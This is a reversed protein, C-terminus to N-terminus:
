SVGTGEAACIRVDRIEAEVSTRGRFTNLKPEIVAEVRMGPTLRDALEGARWWVGRIWRRGEPTEQRFHLSLHQGNGGIQKAPGDVVLDAVRLRPPPNDRGFPSLRRIRGVTEYKLEGLSCDCDIQVVSSLDEPAIHTNAHAVLAETFADLADAGLALGAAADHGGFSTLHSACATLGAHISYGEVSRASGRLVGDDQQQLLVAPRHFRDVLRSCVIGIVGPHWEPHALVIARRDDGTMGAAEALRMAQELIRRETKQRDKNLATLKRAIPMAVAPDDTLFLEAAERAHGMRGCANLRPALQFGVKEADIHQDALDSAEILARLGVNSTAPMARLGYSAIVRNEDVLPVVDAITGLAALPLLDLLAQQFSKGVKETGCWLTAFRWALKFAVGAGALEGFPYRSGPRRPHVVAFADPLADDNAPPNHHDTIILDVGRSKAALAPEFATVGCDVSVILQAGDDALQHIADVNLGYGEDLRHPIYISVPADPAATRIIRQLIVAGTVGDVDYDGYIVIPERARVADAIRQAARDADPLLAPDHLHVLRPECFRQIIDPDLVGRAALIRQVLPDVGRGSDANDPAPRANIDPEGNRPPSTFRWRRTLGRM